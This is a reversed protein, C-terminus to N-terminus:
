YYYYHRFTGVVPLTFLALTLRSMTLNCLLWVPGLGPRGSLGLDPRPFGWSGRLPYVGALSMVRM